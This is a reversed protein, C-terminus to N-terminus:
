QIEKRYVRHRKYVTGGVKEMEARMLRNSELEHHSDAYEMGKARASEVMAIGLLTDIGRGRYEAKIAGLLLDLRKARKQHLKIAFYGFPVLRGRARRFGETVDRVGFMFGVTEGREDVAIKIFAPDLIQAYTRSTKRIVEETLPIFGYIETYTENMFRLARPLWRMAEKRSEPEVLRVKLRKKAWEAIRGIEVPVEGRIPIRYTVYDVEKLYGASELLRPVYDFNCITGISPREGFGEVLFGQPDQNSFGLPGVVRRMGNERAWGEVAGLLARATEEDDISEFNCFRAEPASLTENLRRNIIGMIRGAAEGGRRALFCVVSSCDLHRNKRPNLFNREFLRLPPVWLAHGEHLAYPLSLYAKFDKGRKVQTVIV